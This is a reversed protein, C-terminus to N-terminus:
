ILGDIPSSPIGLYNKKMRGALFSERGSIVASKFAKAMLIEADIDATIISNSKLIKTGQFLASSINM